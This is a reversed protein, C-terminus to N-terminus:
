LSFYRNLNSLIKHAVTLITGTTGARLQLCVSFMWQLTVGGSKKGCEGWWVTFRFLYFNMLTIKFLGAASSTIHFVIWNSLHTACIGASPVSCSGCLVVGPLWQWERHCRGCCVALLIMWHHKRSLGSIYPITSSDFEAPIVDEDWPTVTCSSCVCLPPWLVASIVPKSFMTLLLFNFNENYLISFICFLCMFSSILMMLWLLFINFQKWAWQGLKCCSLYQNCMSIVLCSGTCEFLREM